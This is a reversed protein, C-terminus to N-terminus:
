SITEIFKNKVGDLLQFSKLKICFIDSEPDNLFDNLHIHYKMFQLRISDKKRPDEIPQFEGKITLAKLNGRKQGMKIERTDILLSVTPNKTLNLYKRSDRQSVMYIEHGDEDSIYTMLSCHPIGESVTAMVCLDNKKIIEKIKELMM